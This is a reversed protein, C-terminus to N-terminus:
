YLALAMQVTALAENAPLVDRAGTEVFGARRYLRVAASNGETVWLELRDLGRTRAWGLVADLLALGAGRGRAEPAVWMGGVRGVTPRASDLLGFVLGVARPGDEAVFMARGGPATVSRTLEEWYSPPQAEAHALTQAFADPADALARLRLERFLAAEGDGLARVRM